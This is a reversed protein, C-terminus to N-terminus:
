QKGLILDVVWCGRVHPGPSRCHDLLIRDTCGSDELADALIPLAAFDREHYTVRALDRVTATQLSESFGVRTYPHFLERILTATRPGGKAAHFWGREFWEMATGWQARRQQASPPLAQVEEWTLEGQEPPHSRRVQQYDTDTSEGDAYREVAEIVPILDPQGNPVAALVLRCFACGLLLRKRRTTKGYMMYRMPKPNESALWEAETMPRGKKKV